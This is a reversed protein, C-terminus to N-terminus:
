YGQNTALMKLSNASIYRTARNAKNLTTTARLAAQATWRGPGCLESGIGVTGPGDGVGCGPVGRVVGCVGGDVGIGDPGFVEECKAGGGPPL